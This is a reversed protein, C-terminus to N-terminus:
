FSKYWGGQQVLAWSSLVRVEFVRRNCSGAIRMIRKNDSENLWCSHYSPNEGCRPCLLVFFQKSVRLINLLWPGLHAFSEPSWPPYQHGNAKAGLRRSAHLWQHFKPTWTCYQRMAGLTASQTEHFEQRRWHSRNNLVFLSSLFCWLIRCLLGLLAHSDLPDPDPHVRQTRSKTPPSAGLRKRSCSWTDTSREPRLRCTGRKPWRALTFRSSNM